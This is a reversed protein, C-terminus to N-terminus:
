SAIRGNPHNWAEYIKEIIVHIAHGTSRAKRGGIHTQPLLHHTEVLYSLRRAVIADMIKGLTNLLAIPRYAKPVSYDDKGPKHLVVILSERFHSPCYGLQISQNFIRTLHPVVQPSVLYLVENIISGPGPAKM